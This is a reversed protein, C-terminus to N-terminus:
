KIQYQNERELTENSFPTTIPFIATPKKFPWMHRWWESGDYEERILMEGDSFVIILDSAVEQGGYGNDYELDSIACFIDWSCQHGTKESGIFVIDSQTHGSRSISIETEHKLNM